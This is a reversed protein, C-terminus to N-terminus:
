HTVASVVHLVGPVRWAMGEVVPVEDAVEELLGQGVLQDRQV